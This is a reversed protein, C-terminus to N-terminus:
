CIKTTTLIRIARISMYLMYVEIAQNSLIKLIITSKKKMHRKRSEEYRSALSYVEEISPVIVRCGGLDQMTWLNMSNERKLKGIISDLRKLREAVFIDNRKRKFRRLHTYIIHLPFAHAMRWNDIIEIAEKKKDSSVSDNRITKGAKIIQTRSFEVQKWRTEQIM